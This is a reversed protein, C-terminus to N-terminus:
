GALHGAHNLVTVCHSVFAAYDSVHEDSWDMDPAFDAKVKFVDRFDEELGYLLHCLAPPGILVVKVDLAVPQPRLTGTPVPSTQEALNEIQVEHAM